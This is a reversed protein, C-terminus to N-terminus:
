LILIHESYYQEGAEKWNIKVKWLGKEFDSTNFQQQGNVDLQLKFKRDLAADSPRFFHVEGELQKDKITLVVTNTQKDSVIKPQVNLDKVNQMRDIQDQYALEQVYYDDAVLGIEQNMSIVVLTVILGVFLVLTLVIRNGWNM